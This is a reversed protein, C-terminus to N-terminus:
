GARQRLIGALDVQEGTPRAGQGVDGFTRAALHPKRAILEDVATELAAGDDLLAEDFPLDTPDALKGLATVRAHFLSQALDDARKARVRAKAAEDRLGQVYERSFTEPDDTRNAPDVTSTPEATIEGEPSDGTDNVTVGQQGPPVGESADQPAPTEDTNNVTM